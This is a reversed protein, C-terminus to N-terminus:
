IQVGYKFYTIQNRSTWNSLNKIYKSHKIRQINQTNARKQVHIQYFFYTGNQLGYRQGFNMAIFLM